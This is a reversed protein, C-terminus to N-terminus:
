IWLVKLTCSISNQEVIDPACYFTFCTQNYKLFYLRPRQSNHFNPVPGSGPGSGHYPDPDHNLDPDSDSGSGPGSGNYPDPDFDLDPDLDSDRDRDPDPDSGSGPGSVHDHDPDSCQWWLSTTHVTPQYSQCCNSTLM